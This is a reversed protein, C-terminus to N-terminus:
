DDKEGPYVRVQDDFPEDLIEVTLERGGNSYKLAVVGHRAVMVQEIAEQIQPDRDKMLQAMRLFHQYDPSNEDM